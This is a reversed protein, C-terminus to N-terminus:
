LMAVAAVRHARQIAVADHRNEARIPVGTLLWRIMREDSVKVRKRLVSCGDHLYCKRAM